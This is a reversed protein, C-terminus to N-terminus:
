AVRRIDGGEGTLVSLLAETGDCISYTLLIQAIRKKSGRLTAVPCPRKASLAANVRTATKVLAFAAARIAQKPTSGPFRYACLSKRYGLRIVGLAGAVPSIETTKLGRRLIIPLSDNLSKAVTM